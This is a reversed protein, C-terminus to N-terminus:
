GAFPLKDEICTTVRSAFYTIEGKEQAIQSGSLTIAQFDSLRRLNSKWRAVDIFEHNREHNKEGLALREWEDVLDQPPDELMHRDVGWIVPIIMRGGRTGPTENLAIDLERMPWFRKFYTPSIIPVFVLSWKVSSEIKPAWREGVTINEVDFFSLRKKAKLRDHIAAALEGAHYDRGTHSLFATNLLEEQWRL